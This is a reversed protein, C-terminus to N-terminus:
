GFVACAGTEPCTRWSLPYVEQRNQSWGGGDRGLCGAVKMEVGGMGEVESVMLESASRPPTSCTAPRFPVAARIVDRALGASADAESLREM